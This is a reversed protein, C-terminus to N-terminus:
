SCVLSYMPMLGGQQAHVGCQHRRGLATCLALMAAATRECRRKGTASQCGEQHQGLSTHHCARREMAEPSDRGRAARSASVQPLLARASPLVRAPGSGPAGPQAQLQQGWWAVMLTIRPHRDKGEVDVM